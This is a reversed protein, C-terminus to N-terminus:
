VCIKMLKKPRGNTNHGARSCYIDACYILSTSINVYKKLSLNNKRGVQWSMLDLTILRLGTKLMDLM